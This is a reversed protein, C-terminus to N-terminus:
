LPRLFSPPFSYFFPSLRVTLLFSIGSFGCPPQMLGGRGALTLLHARKVSLTSNKPVKRSKRVSQPGKQRKPGKETLTGLAQDGVESSMEGPRTFPVSFQLVSCFVRGAGGSTIYSRHGDSQGPGAVSQDLPTLTNSHASRGVM